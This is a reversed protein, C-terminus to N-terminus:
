RARDISVAEDGSGTKPYGSGAQPDSAFDEGPNGGGAGCGSGHVAGTKPDFYARKGNEPPLTQSGDDDLARPAAQPNVEGSPHRRGEAQERNLHYDQGSYGTAVDFANPSANPEPKARQDGTREIKSSM